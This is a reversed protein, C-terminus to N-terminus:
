AAELGPRVPAELARRASAITRLLADCAETHCRGADGDFLPEFTVWYGTGDDTPVSSVASVPCFRAHEAGNSRRFTARLHLRDEPARAVTVLAEADVVGRGRGDRGRVDRGSVDWETRDPAADGQDFRLLGIRQAISESTAPTTNKFVTVHDAMISTTDSLLARRLANALLGSAFPVLVAYRSMPTPDDPISRDM